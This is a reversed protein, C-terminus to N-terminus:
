GGPFPPLTSPSQWQFARALEGLKSRLEPPMVDVLEQAREQPSQGPQPTLLPIVIDLVSKPRQRRVPEPESTSECAPAAEMDPQIVMTWDFGEALPPLAQAENLVYIRGSPDSYALLQM